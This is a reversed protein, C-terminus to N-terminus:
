ELVCLCVMDQLVALTKIYEGPLVHNFSGLGQGLKIYLGGNCLAGEVIRDASRQHCRHIESHYSSSGQSCWLYCQMYLFFKQLDVLKKLDM